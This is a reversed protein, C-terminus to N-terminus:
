RGTIRDFTPTGAILSLTVDEGNIIVSRKRMYLRTLALNQVSIIYEARKHRLSRWPHEVARIRHAGYLRELAAADAASLLKWRDGQLIGAALWMTYTIHSQALDEAFMNMIIETLRDGNLHLLRSAMHHIADSNHVNKIVNAIESPLEGGSSEIDCSESRLNPRYDRYIVADLIMLTKTVKDYVSLMNFQSLYTRSIIGSISSRYKMKGGALFRGSRKTILGGRAFREALSIDDSNDDSNMDENNMDDGNM